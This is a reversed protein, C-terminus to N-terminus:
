YLQSHTPVMKSNFTHIDFVPPKEFNIDMYMLINDVALIFGSTRNITPDRKKHYLVAGPNCVRSTTSHFPINAVVIITLKVVVM